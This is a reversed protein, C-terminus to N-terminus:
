TRNQLRGPQRGATSSACCIVDRRGRCPRDVGPAPSATLGPNRRSTFTFTDRHGPREGRRSRRGDPASAPQHCPRPTRRGAQRRRAARVTPLDACRRAACVSGTDAVVIKALIAGDAIASASAKFRISGRETFKLANGALNILIQKVKGGDGLISRPLEPACEVKVEIGKSAAEGAFMREVEHLTVWLDFRGEVLEPRRAELKAM